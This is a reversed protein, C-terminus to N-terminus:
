PVLPDIRFTALDRSNVGAVITGAAAGGLASTAAELKRLDERGRVEVFARMGLEAARRAMAALRDGDLIRAILLVADAGCRDAVDVEEESLLFDKRLVACARLGNRRRREMLDAVAVLDDLSGKFFNGETLVSVAQAGAEAYATALEVPDLDPAIDGKSPSARKVEFVAGPEGLFATRGVRRAAPVAAGFEPGLREVDARRREVIRRLIDEEM